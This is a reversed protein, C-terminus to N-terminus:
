QSHGESDPKPKEKNQPKSELATAPQDAYSQESKSLEDAEIAASEVFEQHRLESIFYSIVGSPCFSAFTQISDSTLKGTKVQEHLSALLEEGSHEDQPLLIGLDSTTGSWRPILFDEGEYIEGGAFVVIREGVKRKRFDGSDLYEIGELRKKYDEHVHIREDIRLRVNWYPSGYLEGIEPVSVVTCLLTMGALGPELVPNYWTM